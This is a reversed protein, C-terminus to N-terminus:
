KKGFDNKLRRYDTPLKINIKDASPLKATKEKTVPDKTTKEDTGTKKDLM